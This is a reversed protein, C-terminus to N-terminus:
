ESRTLEKLSQGTRISTELHKRFEQKDGIDVGLVPALFDALQATVDLEHELSNEVKHAIPGGNRGTIETKDAILGLLKAKGMTATVAASVQPTPLSLAVKRANELEIVLDDVTVENRKAADARLEDIKASVKPHDLLEKAKRNVTEPKMNQAEYVVRYAESANGTEVYAFCFAEQKITLKNTM